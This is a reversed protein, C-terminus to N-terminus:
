KLRVRHPAAKAPAEQMRRYEVMAEKRQDPTMRDFMLIGNLHDIEHQFLRGMFEDVEFEIENGDLSIGRVLVRNPRLIEAYLDPISLCGESYVFEGDSEVIVPNIIASAEDDTDWVVIQKQVGIQPAALAVGTDTTYLSDFMDDVIDLLKGDIDAVPSAMAKLVPDGFTRIKQEMGALSGFAHSRRIGVVEVFLGGGLRRRSCDVERQGIQAKAELGVTSHETVVADVAAGLQQQESCRCRRAGAVEEVEPTAGSADCKRERLAGGIGRHPRDIHVFPSPRQTGGVSRGVADGVNPHAGGVVDVLLDVELRDPAVRGDTDPLWREMRHQQAPEAAEGRIAGGRHHHVLVETAVRQLAPEVLLPVGGLAERRRGTIADQVATPLGVM